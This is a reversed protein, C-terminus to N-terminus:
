YEESRANEVCAAAAAHKLQVLCTCSAKLAASNSQLFCSHLNHAHGSSAAQAAENRLCHVAPAQYGHVRKAGCHDLIALTFLYRVVSVM